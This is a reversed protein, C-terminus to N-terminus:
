YFYKNLSKKWEINGVHHSIKGNITISDKGWNKQYNKLSMKLAKEKKENKDVLNVYDGIFKAVRLPGNSDEYKNIQGIWQDHCGIKKNGLEIKKLLLELSALSDFIIKGKTQMNHLPHGLAKPVDIHIMKVGAFAGLVGASNIGFCVGLDSALAAVTVKIKSDLLILRDQSKLFDYTSIIKKSKSLKQFTNSKSKIIVAWKPNKQIVDLVEEYFNVIKSSSNQGM